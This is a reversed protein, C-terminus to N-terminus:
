DKSGVVADSRTGKRAQSPIPQTDDSQYYIDKEALIGYLEPRRDALMKEGFFDRTRGLEIGEHLDVTATVLGPEHGIEAIVEGTPAIIRSHGYYDPCGAYRAATTSDRAPGIQAELSPRRDVCPAV